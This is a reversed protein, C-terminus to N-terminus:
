DGVFFSPGFSVTFPYGVRLALAVNDTFQYRGGIDAWFDATIEEFEGFTRLLFGGEAMANWKETLWFNWQLGVPFLQQVSFRCASKCTMLAAGFTIAVTNNLKPIFAPDAVEISARFGGGFEADGLRQDNGYHKGLNRHWLSLLFNPELEARYQPHADPEKITLDAHASSTFM